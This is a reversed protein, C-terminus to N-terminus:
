ELLFSGMLQRRLAAKEEEDDNAQPKKTPGRWVAMPSTAATAFEDIIMEHLFESSPSPSLEETTRDMDSLNKGPAPTEPVEFLPGKPAQHTVVSTQLTAELMVDGDPATVALLFRQGLIDISIGNGARLDALQQHLEQNERQLEELYQKQKLLAQTVLEFSKDIAEM